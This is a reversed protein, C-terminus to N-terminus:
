PGEVDPIQKGLEPIDGNLEALRRGLANRDKCAEVYKDYGGFTEDFWATVDELPIGGAAAIDRPDIPEFNKCLSAFSM